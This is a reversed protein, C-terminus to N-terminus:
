LLSSLSTTLLDYGGTCCACKQINGTVDAWEPEWCSRETRSLCGSSSRRLARSGSGTSRLALRFCTRVCARVNPPVVRQSHLFIIHLMGTAHFACFCCCFYPFQSFFHKLRSYLYPKFKLFVPFKFLKDGKGLQTGGAPWKSDERTETPDPHTSTMFIVVVSLFLLANKCLNRM